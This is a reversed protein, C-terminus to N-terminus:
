SKKVEGTARPIQGLAKDLQQRLREIEQVGAVAMADKMIKIAQQLKPALAHGESSLRTLLREADSVTSEAMVVAALRNAEEMERQERDHEERKHKELQDQSYGATRKLVIKDTEGGAHKARCHFIGDADINFVIEVTQAGAKAAPIGTVDFSALSTNQAATDFEGQLVHVHLSTQNDHTTAVKYSREIPITTNRDVVRKFKGGPEEVGLTLPLVDLLLVDTIEGTLVGGQIAAGLAVAEDPNVSKTPEKNFFGRIFQQVAPIRTTGGVLVVHNIQDSTLRADQLARKIPIGTDEVLDKTIQNFTQQTITMDLNIPDGAAFGLFPLLVQTTQMGSLELKAKEAAEKIRQKAVVDKSVDVHHTKLVYEEIHKIIRHDFDDGGLKNNGNTAKVQLVGDAVQLITVDFTGGGFDFIVINSEQGLKNLGFALASATPENIVRLVELGCIEGAHKTALRQADDFYAPVTIIAQTVKENLHTQAQLKLKQLICASIQEPSFEMHDIKVRHDTGMFRKISQVTREPHKVAQRKAPVGVLRTGNEDFCVISPTTRQGESNPIVVPKGGEIAAVCSNTTGLDIGIIKGKGM